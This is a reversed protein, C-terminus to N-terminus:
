ESRGGSAAFEAYGRVMAKVCEGPTPGGAFFGRCPENILGPRNEEVWSQAEYYADPDNSSTEVHVVRNGSFTLHFTDTVNVDLDLAEILDDKVTISCSINEEDDVVCPMRNLVEYNGGEAWGQYYLIQPISAEAFVLTARLADGDFSYFADILAEATAINPNDVEASDPLSSDGCAGVALAVITLGVFHWNM